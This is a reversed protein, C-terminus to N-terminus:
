LSAQVRKVYEEGMTTTVIPITLGILKAKLTDPAYQSLYLSQLEQGKGIWVENLGCHAAALIRDCTFEVSLGSDIAPDSYGRRSGDGIVANKAVDTKISGPCVNTISVGTKFGAEEVRLADFWGMMAHKAGCYLTRLPIGFKGAFSSINVIQGRKREHMSPLLAKTLAVASLFNVEMMQVDQQIGPTDMALARSSYGGNNVLVDVGGFLALAERAKTDLSALDQLDLPLVRLEGSGGLSKALEAALEQLVQERRASLILKAGQRALQTALERGIGSSAGTIWVVKGAYAQKPMQAAATANDCCKKKAGKFKLAAYAIGGCSVLGVARLTWDLGALALATM